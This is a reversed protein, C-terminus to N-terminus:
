PTAPAASTGMQAGLTALRGATALDGRALADAISNRFAAPM